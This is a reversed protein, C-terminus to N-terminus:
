LVKEKQIRKTSNTAKLMNNILRMKKKEEYKKLKKQTILNCLKYLSIKEQTERKREIETKNKCKNLM